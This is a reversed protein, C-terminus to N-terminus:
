TTRAKPAPPHRLLYRRLGRFIADAIRAQYRTDGLRKEENPNSM